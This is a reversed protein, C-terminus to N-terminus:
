LGLADLIADEVAANRDEVAAEHALAKLTAADPLHPNTARNTAATLDTPDEGQNPLTGSIAGCQRLIAWATRDGQGETTVSVAGASGGGTLLADDVVVPDHNQGAVSDGSFTLVVPTTTLPGGTVAIDGATFGEVVGDAATDIAAEITAANADFAINGTEFETGDWLTFALTFTGGSVTGQHAAISQVENREAYGSPYDRDGQRDMLAQLQRVVARDSGERPSSTDITRANALIDSYIGL